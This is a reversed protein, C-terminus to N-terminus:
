HLVGGCRERVSSRVCGRSKVRELVVLCVYTDERVRSRTPLDQVRFKQEKGYFLAIKRRKLKDQNALLSLTPVNGTNAQYSKSTQYQCEWTGHLKDVIEEFVVETAM